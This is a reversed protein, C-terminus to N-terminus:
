AILHDLYTFKQSDFIKIGTVFPEVPRILTVVWQIYM